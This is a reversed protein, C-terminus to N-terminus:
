EEQWFRMYETTNKPWNCYSGTRIFTLAPGRFKDSNVINKTFDIM